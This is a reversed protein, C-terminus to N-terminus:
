EGDPFGYDRTWPAGAHQCTDAPAYNPHTAFLGIFRLLGHGSWERAVLLGSPTKKANLRLREARFRQNSREHMEAGVRMVDKIHTEGEYYGHEVLHPEDIVTGCTCLGMQERNQWRADRAIGEEFVRADMLCLQEHMVHWVNTRLLLLEAAVDSIADTNERLCRLRALFATCFWDNALVRAVANQAAREHGRTDDGGRLAELFTIEQVNLFYERHSEFSEKKLRALLLPAHEAADQMEDETFEDAVEDGIGFAVRLAGVSDYERMMMRVCRRALVRLLPECSWKDAFRVLRFLMDRRVSAAYADDRAENPRSPAHAECFELAKGLTAGDVGPIPVVESDNVQMERMVDFMHAVDVDVVFSADDSSVLTVKGPTPNIKGIGEAGGGFGLEESLQLGRRLHALAKAKNGEDMYRAARRFHATDKNKM